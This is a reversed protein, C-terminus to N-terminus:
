LLWLLGGRSRRSHMTRRGPATVLADGHRPGYTLADSHRLRYTLARERRRLRRAADDLCLSSSYTMEGQGARPLLRSLHVLPVFSMAAIPVAHDPGGRVRDVAIRRDVRARAVAAGVLHRIREPLPFGPEPANDGGWADRASIGSVVRDAREALDTGGGGQSIM